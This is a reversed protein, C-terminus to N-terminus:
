LKRGFRCPSRGTALVAHHSSTCFSQQLTDAAVRSAGVSAVM